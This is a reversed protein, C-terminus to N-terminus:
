KDMGHALSSLEVGCGNALCTKFILRGDTVPKVWTEGRCKDEGMCHWREERGTDVVTNRYGYYLKNLLFSWPVRGQKSRRPMPFTKTWKTDLFCGCGNALVLSLHTSSEERGGQMEHDQHQFPLDTFPTWGLVTPRTHQLQSCQGTVYRKSITHKLANRSSSQKNPIHCRSHGRTTKTILHRSNCLPSYPSSQKRLELALWQVLHPVEQARWSTTPQPPIGGSIRLWPVLHIQATLKM